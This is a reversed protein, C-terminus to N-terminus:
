LYYEKTLNKFKETYEGNSLRICLEDEEVKITERGFEWLIRNVPKESMSRVMTLRRLALKYVAASWEIDDRRDAPSIMCLRGAPLLVESAIRLLTDYSLSAEHRAMGKSINESVISQQKTSFYPPNSIIVDPQPLMGYCETIDSHVLQLRGAWRSAEFNMEAERAADDDIEIASIRADSKQAAMLALVGTGAGVDWVTHSDSLNVWAGLMVADTSVKMASAVNKVQFQKFRFVSEKM